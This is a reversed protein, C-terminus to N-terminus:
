RDQFPRPAAASKGQGPMGGCITNREMLPAVIPEGRLSKGFPVGQFVNVLGDDLLPYPGAGEALAGKDAIWLDLIGAEDGTTPWVEKALRHLGTALDARRRAIKEATVGSPLRIVAHTGRGDKRATTLYQLQLGRKFHESIQPIRLAGLAAAITTEDITVDLDAEAATALWSPLRRGRRRGEWWAALLVAVPAVWLAVTSLVAVAGFVWGVGDRVGGLVGLFSGSGSAQALLGVLLVGVALAVLGGATILGLGAALKPADMMRQHRQQRVQERRSTWDALREADGAAEAAAIARRYVGLTASDWGRRAWSGFGQAIMLGARATVRGATLAHPSTIVRATVRVVPGTARRAYEQEDVLEADIVEAAPEVDAGAGTDRGTDEQGV